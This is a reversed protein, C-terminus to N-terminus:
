KPLMVPKIAFPGPDKTKNDGIIHSLKGEAIWGTDGVQTVSVPEAFGDQITEIQAEDGKVTVKNLRGAGEILLFGDGFTRLADAHDLPRSTKLATIAGAKGDKVAIRFLWAPIYTTVYLRGVRIRYRRPRRWREGAGV